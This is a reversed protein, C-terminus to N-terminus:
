AINLYEAYMHKQNWAASVSTMRRVGLDNGNRFWRKGTSTNTKGAGGAGGAAPHAPAPGPLGRRGPGCPHVPDEPLGGPGHPLGHEPDPVAGDHGPDAPGHDTGLSLKM